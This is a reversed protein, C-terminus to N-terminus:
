SETSLYSSLSCLIKLFTMYFWEFVKNNNDIASIFTRLNKNPVFKFTKYNNLSVM